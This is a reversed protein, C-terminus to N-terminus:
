KHTLVGRFNTPILANVQDLLRRSDGVNIVHIKYTEGQKTPPRIVCMAGTSGSPTGTDLYAQDITLCLSKAAADDAPLGQAHLTEHFRKACWKSCQGGGHGDDVAMAHCVKLLTLFINM